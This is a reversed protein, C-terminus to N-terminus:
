PWWPLGSPRASRRPTGTRWYARCTATCPLRAARVSFTHNETFHSGKSSPYRPATRTGSLVRFNADLRMMALLPLRQRGKGTVRTPM